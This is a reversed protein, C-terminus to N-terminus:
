RLPMQVTDHIGILNSLKFHKAVTCLTPPFNMANVIKFTALRRRLSFIAKAVLCGNGNCGNM